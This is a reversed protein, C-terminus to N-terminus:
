SAGKLVRSITNDSARTVIRLEVVKNALLQM